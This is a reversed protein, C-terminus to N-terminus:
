LYCVQNRGGEKAEYLAMDSRKLLTHINNDENNLHSLGISVTVQVLKGALFFKEKAINERLRDAIQFAIDKEIDPMLIAFEEGGIRGVHDVSRTNELMKDGIREIVRDGADHGYTDNISKFHDIDVTLCTLKKDHSSADIMTIDCIDFFARRNLLGTLADTSALETLHKELEEKKRLEDELKNKAQNLAKTKEAVTHFLRSSETKQLEVLEKQTQLSQIRVINIRYALLLSFFLIEFFSGITAANSLYINYPLAGLAMLSLLTMGTLYISLAILYIKAINHHSYLSKIAVFMLFPLLPAAVINVFEFGTKMSISMWIFSISCIGVFGMLIKHLTPFHKKTELIAQSFFILLAFFVPITLQLIDYTKENTYPLLLGRYNMAWLLFVLTHGIYLLYINERLYLFLLLNYLAIVSVASFYFLYIYKKLQLDENYKEQTKLEFAGFVGYISNLHIYIDKKEYPLFRLPFSPTSEKIERDNVQVDLGNKHRIFAQDEKVYMDVTKHIIETLELVMDKSESSDNFVTFHFWFHNKKYGFSFANSTEENFPITSINNIGVSDGPAEAMYAMKFHTYSAKDDTLTLQYDNHAYLVSTGLCIISLYLLISMTMRALM